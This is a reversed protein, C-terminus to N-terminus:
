AIWGLLARVILVWMALGVLASPVIWWGRVGWREPRGHFSSSAIQMSGTDTQAQYHSKM